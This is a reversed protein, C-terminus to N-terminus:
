ACWRTHSVGPKRGWHRRKSNYRIRNGTKVWTWRPVPRSQKQKKALFRKLKFTKHSSLTLLEMVGEGMNMKMVSESMNMEM